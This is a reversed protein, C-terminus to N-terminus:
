KRTAREGAQRQLRDILRRFDDLESKTFREGEVLALVLPAASAGDCFDDALSRLREQVMAERSIAASFVHAFGSTNRVVIRKEELRSLLTNITTHAWKRGQKEVLERIERVTARELEWLAKLVEREAGSVPANLDGM